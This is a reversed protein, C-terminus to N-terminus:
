GLTVTNEGVDLRGHGARDRAGAGCDPQGLTCLRPARLIRKGLGLPNHRRSRRDHREIKRRFRGAPGADSGAVRGSGCIRACADYRPRRGCRGTRVGSTRSALIGGATQYRLDPCLARGRRGRRGARENDRAGRPARFRFVDKRPDLPPAPAAVSAARVGPIGLVADRFAETRSSSEGELGRLVLRNETAFGRDFSMSLQTQGHVVLTSIVLFSAVWFQSAVLLTRIRGKEHSTSPGAGAFLSAPQMGAMRLAPYGGGLAVVVLFVAAVRLLLEVDIASAMDIETGDIRGQIAVLLRVTPLALLFSLGAILSAELLFQLGINRRSAGVSKRIAVERSRSQFGALNLNTSNITTVILILIAVLLFSRVTTEDGPPKMQGAGLSKLHIDTVPILRMHIRVGGERKGIGTMEMFFDSIESELGDIDTGPRIDLYNYASLELRMSEIGGGFDERSRTSRMVSFAFHSNQPLNELVATVVGTKGDPFGITDGVPFRQGFLTEAASRTLVVSDPRDLASTGSGEAFPLPFLEFFNPDAEIVGVEAEIEGVRLNQTRRQSLRTVRRVEPFAEAALLGAVPMSLPMERLPADPPALGFELRHLTESGEIWSDYTSEHHTLWLMHMCAALGVALGVVNLAFGTRDRRARRLLLLINTFLPTSTMGATDSIRAGVRHWAPARWM